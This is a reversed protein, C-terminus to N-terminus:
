RKRKENYLESFSKPILRYWEFDYQSSDAMLDVIQMSYKLAELANDPNLDKVSLKHVIDNRPIRSKEYWLSIIADGKCKLHEALTQIVAKKSPNTSYLDKYDALQNDDLGLEARLIDRLTLEVYRDANLISDEYQGLCYNTISREGLRLAYQAIPYQPLHECLERFETIFKDPDEPLRKTWLDMLDNGHVMIFQETSLGGESTQTYYSVTQPLTRPTVNHVTHDHRYLKYATLFDNLYEVCQLYIDLHKKRGISEKSYYGVLVFSLSHYMDEDAGNKGVNEMGNILTISLALELKGSDNAIVRSATYGPPFAIISSVPLLFYVASWPADFAGDTNNRLYNQQGSVTENVDINHRKEYVVDQFKPFIISDDAKIYHGFAEIFGEDNILDLIIEVSEQTRKINKARKKSLHSM